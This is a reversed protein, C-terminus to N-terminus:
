QNQFLYIIDNKEFAFNELCFECQVNIAKNTTLIQMAEEEGVLKITELMRAKSCPCKFEVTHGQFLRCKEEHFLRYLLEENDLTLLEKDTITHALTILHEWSEEPCLQSLEDEPMRQLMIGAAHTQDSALIFKTPLQESQLFYHEISETISGKLPVISQYPKVKNDSEITVVLSGNNLADRYDQDTAKDDFQVLARTEFLHNCKVLLLSIAKKSQFQVTLQGSYKLTSSMLLTCLLAESLLSCISDPYKHKGQTKEIVKELHIIEGRVNHEDFLFRQINDKDYMHFILIFYLVITCM